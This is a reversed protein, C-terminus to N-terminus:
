ARPARFRGRPAGPQGWPPSALALCRARQPQHGTPGALAVPAGGAVIIVVAARRAATLMLGERHGRASACRLCAGIPASGEFVSLYWRLVSIQHAGPFVRAGERCCALRGAASAVRVLGPVYEGRRGPCGDPWIPHDARSWGRRQRLQWGRRIPAIPGQAPINRRVIRLRCQFQSPRVGGGIQAHVQDTASMPQLTRILDNPLEGPRGTSPRRCPVTVTGECRHSQRSDPFAM